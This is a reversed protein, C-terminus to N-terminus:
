RLFKPKKNAFLFYGMLLTFIGAAALELRPYLSHSMQLPVRSGVPLVQEKVEIEFPAFLNPISPKAEVNLHYEGDTPFTFPISEINFEGVNNIPKLAATYIQKEGGGGEVQSITFQCNCKYIDFGQESNKLYLDLVTPKLAIGVEDPNIHVLLFASGDEVLDHARAKYGYSFFILFLAFFTIFKIM